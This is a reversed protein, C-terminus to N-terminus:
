LIVTIIDSQNILFLLITKFVFFIYIITHIILMDSISEQRFVIKSM